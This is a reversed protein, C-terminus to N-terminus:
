AKAKPKPAAGLPEEVKGSWQQKLRGVLGNLEEVSHPKVLYATAGLGYARSVDRSEDSGSFIVVELNRLTPQGRLWTLVDFGDLRPMKLDLLLLDPLPHAARDSFPGKGELYDLAEQGDRVFHLKVPIGARNFARQLFFADTADDEAVLIHETQRM